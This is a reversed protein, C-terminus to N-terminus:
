SGGARWSYTGKEYNITGTYRYGEMTGDSNEQNVALCEYRGTPEDLSESGGAIPDCSTRLIPGDFLGDAVLGRATKTIEKRLGRELDKRFDIEIRDLAAKADEDAVRKREAEAAEAEERAADAARKDAVAKRERKLENDHSVKLAIATGAGGLLLASLVGFIILRRKRSWRKRAFAAGCHPCFDGATQSQTSCRPCVRTPPESRPSGPEGTQSM